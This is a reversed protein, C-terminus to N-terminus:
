AGGFSRGAGAAIRGSAAAAGCRWHCGCRATTGGAIGRAGGATTAVAGQPVCAADRGVQSSTSGNGGGGSAGSGAGSGGSGAGGGSTYYVTGIKSGEGTKGDSAAGAGVTVTQTGATLFASTSYIYGGAGGGGATSGPVPGAFKGSGGGGVVLIECSGAVGITITGSGTFKYITKGARSTTDITPSGTSGTVTALPTGGGQVFPLGTLLPSM